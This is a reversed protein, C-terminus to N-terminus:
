ICSLDHNLKHIHNVDKPLEPKCVSKIARWWVLFLSHPLFIYLDTLIYTKDLNVPRSLEWLTPLLLHYSFPRASRLVGNNCAVPIASYFISDTTTACPDLGRKRPMHAHVAAAVPMKM